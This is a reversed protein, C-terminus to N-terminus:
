LVKTKGQRKEVPPVSSSSFNYLVTFAKIFIIQFAIIMYSDGISKKTFLLILYLLSMVEIFHVRHHM